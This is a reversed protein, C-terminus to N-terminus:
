PGIAAQISDSTDDSRRWVVAANGGSFGAQAFTASSEGDDESLIQTASLAGSTTLRRAEIVTYSGFTQQWAVVGGGAPGVDVQPQAARQGQLSLTLDPGLTGASSRTLAQTRENTGDSRLWAIVADGDRDVGVQPLDADRGADSLTQVPSLLGTATRARAQVRDVLQDQVVWTFVADGTADVALQPASGDQGAPSVTQIAALVGSTSLARAKVSFDTGDFALWAFVADGDADVAVQHQFFGQALPSFLDQPASLSGAATRTRAQIWGTGGSSVQWAYVADGANDVALEPFEADQGQPSVQQVASLQGAASRARTQVTDDSRHWVFVADGDADIAVRAGSADNGPLSINQVSSLAGAANLTRTQVRVNSGDSRLWAFVADGNNAVAVQPQDASQAASSLDLPADFTANAPTVIGASMILAAVLVTVSRRRKVRAVM